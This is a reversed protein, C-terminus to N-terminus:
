KFNFSLSLQGIQRITRELVCCICFFLISFKVKYNFHTPFFLFLHLFIGHSYLIPYYFDATDWLSGPNDRTKM